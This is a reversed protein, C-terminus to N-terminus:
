TAAGAPVKRKPKHVVRVQAESEKGYGGQRNMSYGTGKRVRVVGRGSEPTKKAEMTVPAGRSMGLFPAVVQAQLEAICRDGHWLELPQHGCERQRSRCERMFAAYAAEAESFPHRAEGCVLVFEAGDDADGVMQMDMVDCNKM